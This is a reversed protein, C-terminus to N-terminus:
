GWDTPSLAASKIRLIRECGACNLASRQLDTNQDKNVRTCLWYAHDDGQIFIPTIGTLRLRQM